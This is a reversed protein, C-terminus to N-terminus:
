MNTVHQNCTTVHCDTFRIFQVLTFQLYSLRFQVSSIFIPTVSYEINLRRTAWGNNLCQFLTSLTTVTKSWPSSDPAHFYFIEVKNWRGGQQPFPHLSKTGIYKARSQLSTWIHLIWHHNKNKETKHQFYGKQTLKTWFNLITLKLQLITGLSNRIHLIQHYHESKWYCLNEQENQKFFGNPM